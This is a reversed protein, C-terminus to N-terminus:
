CNGVIRWECWWEECELGGCCTYCWLQLLTGNDCIYVDTRNWYCNDMTTIAAATQQERVAALSAVFGVGAALLKRRTFRNTM